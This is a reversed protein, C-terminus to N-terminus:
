TSVRTDEVRDRYIAFERTSPLGYLVERRVVMNIPMESFMDSLKIHIGTGPHEKRDGAYGESMEAVDTELDIGHLAVYDTLDSKKVFLANLHTLTGETLGDEDVFDGFAAILSYYDTLSYDSLFWGPQREGRRNVFSLEFSPYDLLRNAFGGKIKVKEDIRCGGFVVDVGRRQLNPEVVRKWKEGFMPYFHADMFGGVVDSMASDKKRTTAYM